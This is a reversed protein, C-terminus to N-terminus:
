RRDPRWEGIGDELVTEAADLAVTVDKGTLWCSSKMARDHLWLKWAGHEALLMLTGTERTKGDGWRTVTLWKHLEPYASELELSSAAPAGSSPSMKDPAKDYRMNDDEDLPRSVRYCVSHGRFSQRGRKGAYCLGCWGGQRSVCCRM